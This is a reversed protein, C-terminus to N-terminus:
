MTWLAGGIRNSYESRGKPYCYRQQIATPKPFQPGSLGWPCDPPLKKQMMLHQLHDPPKPRVFSEVNHKPKKDPRLLVYIGPCFEFAPPSRDKGDPGVYVISFDLHEPKSVEHYLCKFIARVDEDPIRSCSSAVNKDGALQTSEDDVTNPSSAERSPSADINARPRTLSLDKGRPISQKTINTM